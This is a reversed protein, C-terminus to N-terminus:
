PLGALHNKYDTGWPSKPNATSYDTILQLTGGWTDWAWAGYSAHNNDLWNMLTDVQTTSSSSGNGNEGIEGAMLPMQEIVPLLESNYCSVTVCYYTTEPYIDVTAMLQAPSLPDSVRYAPDLFHNLTSAYAVGPVQIVNSAGTGRIINILSQMGVTPYGESCHSVSSSPTLASAVPYQVDGNKWCDWAAADNNDSHPYPEEKLRFIVNPDNKFTDAVSQWFAPSHDNDPMAAQGNAAQSGPASWFLSLVPYIGDAEATAVEHKIANIYNAGGYAAPVGNIGLWCDENLGVDVSNVGKWGKMLALQSDDNLTNPGDFIGWGQVCAYESGSRDVGHLVVASGGADQLGNGVV